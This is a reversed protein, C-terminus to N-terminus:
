RHSSYLCNWACPHYPFPFFSLSVYLGHSFTSLLFSLPLKKLGLGGHHDSTLSNIIMQIFLDWRSLCLTSPQSSSDVHQGQGKYLSGTLVQAFGMWALVLGNLQLPNGGFGFHLQRLLQPYKVPPFQPFCNCWVFDNGSRSPPHQSSLCSFLFQFSLFPCPTWFSQHHIKKLLLQIIGTRWFCM